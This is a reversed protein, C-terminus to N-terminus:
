RREITIKWPFWTFPKQANKAVWYEKYEKVKKELEEKYLESQALMAIHAEIASEADHTADELRERVYKVLTEFDPKVYM